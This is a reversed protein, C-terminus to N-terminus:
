PVVRFLNDGSGGILNRINLPMVPCGESASQNGLSNDGHIIFGGRGFMHNEPRPTLRMSHPLHKGAATVNLQQPGIDYDGQPLPGIGPASQM